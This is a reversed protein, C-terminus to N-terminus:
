EQLMELLLAVAKEAFEPDNINADMEILPIDARLDNKLADYCAQDAGPDWFRDGESDLMSVGGLPILVSVKGAQGANAAAALMAGMQRNEEENTRLLTVEPNWEYLTRERYHDPVTEIGGFNAMDVCGPVIVTPVGQRPAAQVRDPGASFVGDCIEDALETTAMDICGAIYGDSILDEMTGGKAPGDYYVNPTEFMVLMLAGNPSTAVHRNGPPRWVYQGPGCVGDHDELSGELIYSQELGTHEHDPITAGPEMKVLMTRVGGNKDQLLIKASVGEFPSPQWELSDVDVYRSALEDIGAHADTNPTQV